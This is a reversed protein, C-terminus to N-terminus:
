EIEFIDKSDHVQETTDNIKEENEENKDIKEPWPNSSEDRPHKRNYSDAKDCMDELFERSYSVAISKTFLNSPKYLLDGANKRVSSKTIYEEKEPAKIM